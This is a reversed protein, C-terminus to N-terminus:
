KSGKAVGQPAKLVLNRLYVFFLYYMILESFEGINVGLGGDQSINLMVIFRPIFDALILVSVIILMRPRPVLFEIYKNRKFIGVYPTVIFLIAIVLYISRKFIKANNGQNHINYVGTLKDLYSERTGNILHIFHAGYDMEELFVFVAFASILFFGIKLVSDNSKFIGSLSLLFIGFIVVLQLNELVGWEWNEKPSVFEVLPPIGSFYFLLLLSLIILPCIWYYFHDKLSMEKIEQTLTSLISKLKVQNLEM